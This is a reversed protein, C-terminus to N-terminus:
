TWHSAWAEFDCLRLLRPFKDSTLDGNPALHAEIAARQVIGQKLLTGDLLMARITKRNLRFIDRQLQGLGGKSRRWAVQPPLWKAAISRALYRDHGHALWAWSPIGLCTEVLPQSLMPFVAKMSNSRAFGQMNFASSYIGRVHELKGPLVGESPPPWPLEAADPPAMAERSLFLPNEVLRARRTSRAAKVLTKRLATWFSCQAASAVNHVTPFFRAEADRSRLVDAAPGSSQLHCFVADGGGGNIFAQATPMAASTLRDIEQVFSRAHVRPLHPSPCSRIDIEGADPAQETLALGLHMAVAQAYSREDGETGASFMNVAHQEIGSRASLAALISSDLGGSLDLIASELGHTRTAVCRLLERELLELHPEPKDAPDSLAAFAWPDWNFRPSPASDANWHLAEGCRLERIGSLCTTRYSINDFALQRTVGPWDITPRTGSVTALLSADSAVITAGDGETYYAALSSLPSHFAAFPADPSPSCFALFSGWCQQGLAAKWFIEELRVVEAPSGDFARSPGHRYHVDGLVAGAMAAPGEAFPFSGLGSAMVLLGRTRTIVAIDRDQALRLAQSVPLPENEGQWLVALFRPM